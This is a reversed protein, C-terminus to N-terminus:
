VKLIDRRTDKSDYVNYPVKRLQLWDQLNRLDHLMIRELVFKGLHISKGDMMSHRGMKHFIDEVDNGSGCVKIAKEKLESYWLSPKILEGIDVNDNVNNRAHALEQVHEDFVSSMDGFLGYKYKFILLRERELKQVEADTEQKHKHKMNIFKTRMNCVIDEPEIKEKKDSKSEEYLDVKEAAIRQWIPTKKIAPLKKNPDNHLLRAINEIKATSDQVEPPNVTLVPKQQLDLLVVLM